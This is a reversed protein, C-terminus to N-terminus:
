STWILQFVWSVRKLRAIATFGRRKQTPASRRFGTQQNASDYLRYRDASSPLSLARPPTIRAPAKGNPPWVCPRSGLSIVSFAFRGDGSERLISIV